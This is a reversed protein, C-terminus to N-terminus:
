GKRSYRVPQEARRRKSMPKKDRATRRMCAGGRCSDAGTLPAAGVGAVSATSFTTTTSWAGGGCAADLSCACRGSAGSCTVVCAGGGGMVTAEPATSGGGCNAAYWGTM